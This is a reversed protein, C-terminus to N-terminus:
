RITMLLVLWARRSLRLHSRRHTGTNMHKYVGWADGAESVNTHGQLTEM